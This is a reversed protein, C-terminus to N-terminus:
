VTSIQRVRITQRPAAGRECGHRVLQPTAARRATYAGFMGAVSPSRGHAHEPEVVDIDAGGLEVIHRGEVLGHEAELAALPRGKREAAGPVIAALVGDDVEDFQGVVDLGAFGLDLM